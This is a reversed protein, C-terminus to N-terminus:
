AGEFLRALQEASVNVDHRKRVLKRGHEAMQELRATPCSIVEELAATLADVSGAPVLWGNEGPVVLEPIGAIFTSVVPRGIAYAEM